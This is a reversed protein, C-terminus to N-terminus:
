GPAECPIRNLCLTELRVRLASLENRKESAGKVLTQSLPNDQPTVKLKTILAVAQDNVASHDRIMTEAFRRVSETESLALAM